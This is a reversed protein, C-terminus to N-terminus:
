RCQREAALDSKVRELNQLLGGLTVGRRQMHGRFRLIAQAVPNQPREIPEITLSSRRASTVAEVRRRYRDPSLRLTSM